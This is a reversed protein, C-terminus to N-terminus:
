TLKVSEKVTKLESWTHFNAFFGLAGANGILDFVLDQYQMTALDLDILGFVYAGHYRQNELQFLIYIRM